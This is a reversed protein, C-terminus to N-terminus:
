MLAHENDVKKMIRALDLASHGDVNRLEPNAGEQLLLQIIEPTSTYAAYMLATRGEDDKLDIDIQKAKMARLVSAVTERDQSRVALEIPSHGSKSRIQLNPSYQILFNVKNAPLDLIAHHLTTFGKADIVDIDLGCQILYEFKESWDRNAYLARHLVPKQMFSDKKLVEVGHRAVVAKVSQLSGHTLKSNLERQDRNEDPIVVCAEPLPGSKYPGHVHIKGAEICSLNEGSTGLSRAWLTKLDPPPEGHQYAIGISRFVTSLTDMFDRESNWNKGAYLLMRANKQALLNRATGISCSALHLMPVETFQADAEGKQAEATAELVLDILDISNVRFEGDATTMYHTGEEVNGGGHIMIVVHDFPGESLRDALEFKLDKMKKASDAGDLQSLMIGKVELKYTDLDRALQQGTVEMGQGGCLILVRPMKGARTPMNPSVANIGITRETGQLSGPISNQLSLKRPDM